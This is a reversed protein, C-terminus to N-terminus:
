HWELLWRITRLSLDHINKMIRVAPNFLGESVRFFVWVNVALSVGFCLSIYLIQAVNHNQSSALTDPSQHQNNAAQTGSFAFFLFFFTGAFEGGMAIFHNRYGSSFFNLLQVSKLRESNPQDM